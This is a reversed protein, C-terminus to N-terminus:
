EYLDEMGEMILQGQLPPEKEGLGRDAECYELCDNKNKACCYLSGGTLLCSEDDDFFTCNNYSM